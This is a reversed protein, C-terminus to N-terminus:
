LRPNEKPDGSEPDWDKGGAMCECPYDGCIRCPLTELATEVADQVEQAVYNQQHRAGDPLFHEALEFCKPDFM